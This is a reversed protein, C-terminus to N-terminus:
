RWQPSSRQLSPLDLLSQVMAEESDLAACASTSATGDVMSVTRNSISPTSINELVRCSPIVVSQFVMYPIRSSYHM